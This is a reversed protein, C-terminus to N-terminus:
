LSLVQGRVNGMQDKIVCFDPRGQPFVADKMLNKAKEEILSNTKARQKVIEVTRRTGDSNTALFELVYVM